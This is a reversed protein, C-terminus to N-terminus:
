IHMDTGSNLHRLQSAMRDVAGLLGEAAANNRRVQEAVDLPQQQREFSERTLVRM